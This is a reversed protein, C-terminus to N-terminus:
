IRWQIWATSTNQGQQRYNNNQLLINNINKSKDIFLLALVTDIFVIVYLYLCAGPWVIDYLESRQGYPQWYVVDYIVMEVGDSLAHKINWRWHTAGQSFTVMFRQKHWRHWPIGNYDMSIAVWGGLWEDVWGGVWGGLWCGVWVRHHSTNKAICWWKWRSCDPQIHNILSFLLLCSKIDEM